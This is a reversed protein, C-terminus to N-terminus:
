GKFCGCQYFSCMKYRKREKFCRLAASPREKSNNNSKKWNSNQGLLAAVLIFPLHNMSIAHVFSKMQMSSTWDCREHRCIHPRFIPFFPVPFHWLLVCPWWDGFKSLNIYFSITQFYVGPAQSYCWRKQERISDVPNWLFLSDLATLSACKELHVRCFYCWTSLPPFFSWFYFAKCEM